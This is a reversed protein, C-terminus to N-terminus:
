RTEEDPRGDPLAADPRGFLRDLLFFRLAFVLVYVLLFVAGVLVSRTAASVSTASLVEDAAATAGVALALTLLVIAVYPLVERRLSPRGRRGWTWTRNLWYNPVAGALWGVISAATTSTDLVGYLTLFTVESCVTAVASGAGYRFLMRLRARRGSGTTAGTEAPDATPDATPV